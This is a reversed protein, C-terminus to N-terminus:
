AVGWVIWAFYSGVAILVCAGFCLASATIEDDIM